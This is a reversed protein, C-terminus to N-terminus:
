EIDSVVIKYGLATALIVVRAFTSRAVHMILSSVELFPSETDYKNKIYYFL